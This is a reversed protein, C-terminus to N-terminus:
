GRLAQDFDAILDDADELGVSVRVMGDAIAMRARVEAGAEWFITPAVPIVLTRTDGMGTAKVPLRLRDMAAIAATEDALDFALLWSGGSFLTKAIAHQPHSELMPYHVARVGPVTQLHRALAFATASCREVRLALTEAGVAIQHAADSTLSGGMDRLGKKRIQQLGWQKADSSRYAAFINPYAQWDFLGTDTVAGGLAVGHGSITKSLSNVVLGAGVRKPLFLLPSTVTNDVVYLLGRERCLRGIAELDPVQTGPNAITEVFVMRTNPRLAAEVNAVSGADVKSVGIGLDEMTGFLSNTNGFVFQSSVMHDGARLLTLFVATLAAMGSAFCVSGLGQEMRTIQAELAASTPTGQRAYNFSGKLRGQFVGILDATSDFGYQTSTHIPKHIAGHEAGGRRDSHVTSTTFGESAPPKPTTTM